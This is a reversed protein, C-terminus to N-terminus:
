IQELRKAEAALLILRERHAPEIPSAAAAAAGAQKQLQQERNWALQRELMLRDREATRLMSQLTESDLSRTSRLQAERANYLLRLSELEREKDALQQRYEAAAARSSEQEVISREQQVKIKEELRRAIAALEANRKKLGRIREETESAQKCRQTLQQNEVRLQAVTEELQRQQAADSSHQPQDITSDANLAQGDSSDLRDQLERCVQRLAALERQLRAALQAGPAGQARISRRQLELAQRVAEDRDRKARARAAALEADRALLAERLQALEASETPQQQQAQKQEM